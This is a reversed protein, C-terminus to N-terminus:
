RVFEMATSIDTCCMFPVTGPSVKHAAQIIYQTLKNHVVVASYKLVRESWPRLTQFFAMVARTDVAQLSDLQFVVSYKVGAVDAKKVIQAYKELVVVLESYPRGKSSLLM